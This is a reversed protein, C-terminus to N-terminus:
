LRHDGFHIAPRTPVAPKGADPWRCERDAGLPLQYPMLDRLKRAAQKLMLRQQHAIDHATM